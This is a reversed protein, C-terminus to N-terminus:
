LIYVVRKRDVGSVYVMVWFMSATRVWSSSYVSLGNKKASARVQRYRAYIVHIPHERISDRLAWSTSSAVLLQSPFYISFDFRLELFHYTVM